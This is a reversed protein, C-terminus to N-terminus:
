SPMKIRSQRSSPKANVSQKFKAMKQCALSHKAIIMRLFYFM